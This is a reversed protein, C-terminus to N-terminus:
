GSFSLFPQSLLPAKELQKTLLRYFNQLNKAQCFFSDKAIALPEKKIRSRLMTQMPRCFEMSINFATNRDGCFASVSMKTRGNEKCGCSFGTMKAQREGQAQQSFSQELRNGQIRLSFGGTWDTNAPLYISLQIETEWTRL